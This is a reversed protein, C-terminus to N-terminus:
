RALAVVIWAWGTMLRSQGIAGAAYRQAHEITAHHTVRAAGLPPRITLAWPELAVGSPGITLTRGYEDSAVMERHYTGVDGRQSAERNLRATLERNRRELISM